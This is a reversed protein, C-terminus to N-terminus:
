VAASGAGVASGIGVKALLRKIGSAEEPTTAGKAAKAARLAKIAKVAGVALATGGVGVAVGPSVMKAYATPDFAQKGAKTAATMAVMHTLPAAALQMGGLQALEGGHKIADVFGAEKTLQNLYKNDM